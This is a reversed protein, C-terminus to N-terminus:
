VKNGVTTSDNSHPLSGNFMDFIEQDYIGATLIEDQKITVDTNLEVSTSEDDLNEIYYNVIELYNTTIKVKKSPEKRYGSLIPSIVMYNTKQPEPIIECFGIYVKNNKLTIQILKGEDSSREFLKELEDGNKRIAWIIPNIKGYEQYICINSIFVLIISSFTGVFVTWFYDPKQFPIIKLFSVISPILQPFLLEIISRIFFSILIILIAIIISEFLLRRQHFRQINYKFLVSYVLIIYGACIPLLLINYPM